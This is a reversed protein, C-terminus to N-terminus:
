NHRRYFNPHDRKWDLRTGSDSGFHLLFSECFFFSWLHTPVKADDAKQGEQKVYALFDAKDMATATPSLVHETTLRGDVSLWGNGAPPHSPLEIVKEKVRGERM